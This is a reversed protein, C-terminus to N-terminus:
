GTKANLARQFELLALKERELELPDIDAFAALLTDRRKGCWVYGHKDDPVCIEFGEGSLWDLFEGVSSLHDAMAAVKDHVPTPPPADECHAIVAVGSALPEIRAVRWRVAVGMHGANPLDLIDGAKPVSAVPTDELTARINGPTLTDHQIYVTVLGDARMRTQVDDVHAFFQALDMKPGTM